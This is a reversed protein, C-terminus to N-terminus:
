SEYDLDFPYDFDDEEPGLTHHSAFPDYSWASDNVDLPFEAISTTPLHIHNEWIQHFTCPCYFPLINFNILFDLNANSSQPVRLLYYTDMTDWELFDEGVPDAYSISFPTLPSMLLGNHVIAKDKRTTTWNADVFSTACLHDLDNGMEPVTFAFHAYGDPPIVSNAEYHSTLSCLILSQISRELTWQPHFVSLGSQAIVQVYDHQTLLEIGTISKYFICAMIGMDRIIKFQLERPLDKLENFAKMIGKDARQDEHRTRFYKPVIHRAESGDKHISVGRLVNSMGMIQDLLEDSVPLFTKSYHELALPASM